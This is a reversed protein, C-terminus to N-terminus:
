GHVKHATSGLVKLDLMSQPTPRRLMPYFFYFITPCWKEGEYQKPAALCRPSHSYGSLLKAQGMATLFASHYGAGMPDRWIPSIGRASGLGAYNFTMYYIHRQKAM